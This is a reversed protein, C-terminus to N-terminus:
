EALKLQVPPGFSNQAENWSMQLLTAGNLIPHVSCLLETGDTLTTTTTWIARNERGLIFDRLEGWLANPGAESQWCRMADLVSTEGISSKRDIGCLQAYASNCALLTGTASFVAMANPLEDLIGQNLELDSRFRRTLSVEASIDEFLFAVAGDPHPRGTVQYTAGSPLTWVEQYNGETAAAIMTTMQERWSGYNKPEPMMQADRLHDFFSLLNPRGSLFDVPLLTLDVLAPNFLVLQMQRDFIALGTSLQAFTKSLTQVFNRQTTEATVISAVDVAYFVLDDGRPFSTIDYWSVEQPDTLEIPQRSPAELSTSLNPFLPQDPDPLRAKAKQYLRQYAANHWIERGNSDVKWVPYPANRTVDRLLHLEAEDSPALGAKAATTERARERELIEIRTASGSPEIMVYEPDTPDAPEVLTVGKAPLDSIEAPFKPFRVRLGNAVRSWDADEEVAGLRQKAAENVSALQGDKFLIM